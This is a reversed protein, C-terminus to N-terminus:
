HISLTLKSSLEEAYNRIMDLYFRNNVFRQDNLEWCAYCNFHYEGDKGPKMNACWTTTIGTGVKPTEFASVFNEECILLSIGLYWEKDYTQKDHTSMIRYRGAKEFVCPQNNLSNVIGAILRSRKPLPSTKIVNEYGYKGAWITMTEQVYIKENYIDWGYFELRFISRVPGNAVLAYRTSDINDTTEKITVGLRILSDKTNLAIGGLGLSSAASMIDRGWWHLQHYTDGPTGDAQIGVTDMVMQSTRKGFVDRVNRGDFYHRFGVKDNEWAPGDTQYPYGKGRPLDYKGHADTGLIVINGPSIMKGYRVNTRPVFVPYSKPLVWDIFLTESEGAELSYVFALEDWEGDKDLDDLQCAIWNGNKDKLVPLKESEEYKIDAKKIVFPADTRKKSTHNTILIHRQYFKNLITITRPTPNGKEILIIKDDKFEICKVGKYDKPIEVQFCIFSKEFRELADLFFFSNEGHFRTDIALLDQYSRGIGTTGFELGKAHPLGNKMEHWVNLWPYDTTNWIYGILLRCDPSSATVWGTKESCLHTTVYSEPVDSRTLDIAKGLSDIKGEPWTYEYKHPEPYSLHQMFGKGANSDIITSQSLFPSGITVHQVINFLRGTSLTSEIYDTVRCVANESDFYIRRDAAIGDLPAKSRIHLFTDAVPEVVDWLQNGSQGNHPVGAKIEGETPAGWRGLCLFHGQFRAGDRNNHPMEERSVKWSFPNVSTSKLRFDVLSGGYLNVSLGAESTKGLKIIKEQACVPFSILLLILIFKEKKFSNM